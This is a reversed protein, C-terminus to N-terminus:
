IKHGMILLLKHAVTKSVKIKDAVPVTEPVNETTKPDRLYRSSTSLRAM